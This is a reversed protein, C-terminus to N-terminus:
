RFYQPEAPLDPGSVTMTAATQAPEEGIDLTLTPVENLNLDDPM